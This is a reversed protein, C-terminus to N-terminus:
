LQRTKEAEARTKAEEIRKIVINYQDNIKAKEADSIDTRDPTLLKEMEKAKSTLSDLEAQYGSEEFFQDKGVGYV